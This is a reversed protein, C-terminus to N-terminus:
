LTASPDREEEKCCVVLEINALHVIREDRHSLLCAEKM